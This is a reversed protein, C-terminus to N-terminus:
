CAAENREVMRTQPVKASELVQKATFLSWLRVAHRGLEASGGEERDVVCIVTRCELGAERLAQIAELSAGGSTM